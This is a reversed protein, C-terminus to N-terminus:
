SAPVNRRPGARKKSPEGVLIYGEAPMGIKLEHHPNPITIKVRYVQKIREEKTQVNKPTFEARSSIFTVTGKYIKDPYTDITIEATQGLKIRGLHLESVYGKLWVEDIEALTGVTAAPLVVEGAENSKILMVGDIPSSLTSYGIDLEIRKVQWKAREYRNRAARIQEERPGAVLERLQQAANEREASAVQYRTEIADFDSTSIVGEKLLPLHRDYEAKALKLRHKAAELQAKAMEIDEERSGRELEDLLAKAAEAAAQAARRQSELTDTDLRSVIQGAKVRDGEEVPYAVIQGNIRFALDVETTEITGSVFVKNKPQEPGGHTHWWYAGGAAALILILAIAKKM